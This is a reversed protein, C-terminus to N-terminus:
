AELKRVASIREGLEQPKAKYCLCPECQELIARWYDWKEKPLVEVFARWDFEWCSQGKRYAPCSAGSRPQGRMPCTENLDWCKRDPRKDTV